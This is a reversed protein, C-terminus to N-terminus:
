DLVTRVNSNGPQNQIETILSPRRRRTGNQAGPHWHEQDIFTSEIKKLENLNGSHSLPLVRVLRFARIPPERPKPVSHPQESHPHTSTTARVFKYLIGPPCSHLYDQTACMLAGCQLASVKSVNLAQCQM